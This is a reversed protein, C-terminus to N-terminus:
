PPRARDVPDAAHAPAAAMAGFVLAAGVFAPVLRKWPTEVIKQM